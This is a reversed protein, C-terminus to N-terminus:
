RNAANNTQQSPKQCAAALLGVNVNYLAALRHLLSLSPFVLGRELRSLHTPDTGVQGAAARLSLGTAERAARLLTKQAASSSPAKVKM